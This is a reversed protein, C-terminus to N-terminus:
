FRIYSMVPNKAVAKNFLSIYPITKVPDVKRKPAIGCVPPYRKMFTMEPPEEQRYGSKLQLRLVRFVNQYYSRSMKKHFPLVFIKFQVTLYITDFGVVAIKKLPASNGHICKVEGYKLFFRSCFIKYIFIILRM